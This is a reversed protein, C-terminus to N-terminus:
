LLTPAALVRQAAEVSRRDPEPAPLLRASYYLTLGQQEWGLRAQQVARARHFTANDLVVVTPPGDQESQAM